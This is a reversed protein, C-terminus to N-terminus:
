RRWRNKSKLRPMRTGNKKITLKNEVLVKRFDVRTNFKSKVTLVKKKIQKDDIYKMLFLSKMDDYDVTLVNDFHLAFLDKSFWSKSEFILFNESVTIKENPYFQKYIFFFLVFLSFFLLVSMESDLNILGVIYLNLFGMIIFLAGKKSQHHITTVKLDEPSYIIKESKPLIGYLNKNNFYENINIGRPIGEAPDQNLLLCLHRYLNPLEKKFEVADEFFYEISVAFFEYVNESAYKRFISKIHHRIKVVELESLYIYKSLLDYLNDSEDFRQSSISFFWAHAMEHLGVNLNDKNTEYGLIFDKWSIAIAGGPNVDGKHYMQTRTSKYAEPYITIVEFDILLYNDIGFSIQIFAGSVAAVHEFGIRFNNGGRFDISRIFNSTRKRFDKQYSDGLARYYPLHTQLVEHLRNDRGFYVM